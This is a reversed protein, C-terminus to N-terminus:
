GLKWESLPPIGDRGGLELSVRAAAWAAFDLSKEDEWGQLLGYIFGAHFVDGCGTTDVAEVAHAPREIIKGGAMAAYGRDGLTVAAFRPGLAMLEECALLPTDGGVLARSFTESVIFYDSERALDLMGERLTGADVVVQVGESKAHRSAALAAEPFLGDTHFIRSRGIAEYDIEDPSPPAGTPRRWFVTRRGIGPEAVIFAFQSACNKRKMLGSADVGESHLSEEIMVGFIDDGIVGTFHCRAGWRALAVLATAVPGGGHVVMGSVECKSDPPPYKGAKAIYDLSCQGLGAVDFLRTNM